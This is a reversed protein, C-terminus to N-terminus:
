SELFKPERGSLLDLSSEEWLERSYKTFFKNGIYDVFDKM